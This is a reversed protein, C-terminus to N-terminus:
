RFAHEVTDLGRDAGIVGAERTGGMGHTLHGHDDFQHFRITRHHVPHGSSTGTPHTSKESTFAAGHGKLIQLPTRKQKVGAMGIKQDELTTWPVWPGDM